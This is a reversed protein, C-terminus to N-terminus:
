VKCNFFFNNNDYKLKYVHIILSCYYLKLNIQNFKSMSMLKINM